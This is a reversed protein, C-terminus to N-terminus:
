QTREKALIPVLHKIADRWSPQKIGYVLHIKSCDLISIRPRKALTPYDETNVPTITDAALTEYLRAENIICRAFEYWSVSEASSFHYTGRPSPQSCISLIAKAIDGAYTPCIIQDCVVRLTSNERALKLITKVFNSGYSSFVGSVRLIVHNRCHHRVAQEGDWKSKGYINIPHAPDDEHHEHDQNGDFVYDTSIHLLKIQHKHCAMAIHGAGQHNIFDATFPDDEAKDVATYAATNIIIDPVHKTIAQDMSDPQTIDLQERTCTIIDFNSAEPHHKIAAALQGSGGTILIKPSYHIM